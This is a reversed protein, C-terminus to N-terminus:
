RQLERATRPITFGQLCAIYHTCLQLERATRPITFSVANHEIDDSHNYNGLLEQYPLVLVVVLVIVVLNYNGLLEQYPLVARM